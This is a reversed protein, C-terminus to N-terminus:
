SNTTGKEKDFKTGAFDAWVWGRVFCGNDNGESLTANNDIEVAGEVQRQQRALDIIELRREEAEADCVECLRDDNLSEAYEKCNSCIM